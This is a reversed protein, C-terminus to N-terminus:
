KRPSRKKKMRNNHFCSIWISVGVMCCFHFWCYIVHIVRCVGTLKYDDTFLVPIFIVVTVISLVAITNLVILFRMTGKKQSKENWFCLRTSWLFRSKGKLEPMVQKYMSHSNATLYMSDVAWRTATLTGARLVWFAAFIVGFTLM